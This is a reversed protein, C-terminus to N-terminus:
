RYIHYLIAARCDMRVICVGDGVSPMHTWHCFKIDEIVGYVRLTRPIPDAAGEVPYNYVLVNQSQPGGGRVACQM